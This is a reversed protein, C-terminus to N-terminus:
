YEKVKKILKIIAKVIAPHTTAAQDPSHSGVANVKILVKSGKKIYKKIGGILNIAKSVSLDVENQSYSKCKVSSVLYVEKQMKFFLKLDLFYDRSSILDDGHIITIM